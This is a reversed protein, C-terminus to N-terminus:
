EGYGFHRLVNRVAERDDFPVTKDKFVQVAEHGKGAVLVIDGPRAQEIAIEIGRWRDPEILAKASTRQLGVMADNIILLPDESRPNDSTLVVVDSLRGATEGM